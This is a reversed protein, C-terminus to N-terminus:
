ESEPRPFLTRCYSGFEDVEHVSLLGGSKWMQFCFEINGYRFVSPTRYKRSTAGRLDPEGFLAIVEDRSMGIHVRSLDLPNAM